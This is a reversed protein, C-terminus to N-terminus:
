KSARKFTRSEQAAITRQDSATDLIEKKLDDYASLSILKYVLACDVFAHARTIRQSPDVAEDGSSAEVLLARVTKTLTKKNEAQAISTM